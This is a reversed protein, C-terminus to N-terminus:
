SGIEEDPGAFYPIDNPLDYPDQLACAYYDSADFVDEESKVDLMIQGECDKFVLSNSKIRANPGAVLPDNVQEFCSTEVLLQTHARAYNGYATLLQQVNSQQRIDYALSTTSVDGGTFMSRGIM